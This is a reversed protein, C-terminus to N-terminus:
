QLYLAELRRCTGTNCGPPNDASTDYYYIHLPVNLAYATNMLVLMRNAQASHAADTAIAFDFVINGVPVTCRLVVRNPWVAVFEVACTHPGALATPNAPDEPLVPPLATQAQAQWAATGLIFILVALMAASAIQVGRYQFVQLIRTNM